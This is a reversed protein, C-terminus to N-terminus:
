VCRSTYLLCVCGEKNKVDEDNKIMESLEDMFAHIATPENDLAIFLINDVRRESRQSLNAIVSDALKKNPVHIITRDPRRLQSSRLGIRTRDRICM